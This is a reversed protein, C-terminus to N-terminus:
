CSASLFKKEFRTERSSLLFNRITTLQLKDKKDLRLILKLWTNKVERKIGM